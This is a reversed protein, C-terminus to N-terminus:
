SKMGRKRNGGRKIGFFREQPEKNKEDARRQRRSRVNTKQRRKRQEKKEETDRGLTREGTFVPYPSEEEFV